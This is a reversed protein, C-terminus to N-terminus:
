FRPPSSNINNNLLNDTNKNDLIDDLFLESELIDNDLKTIGTNKDLIESLNFDIGLNNLNDFFESNKLDLLDQDGSVNESNDEIKTFSDILEMNRNSKTTYDAWDIDNHSKPSSDMVEFNPHAKPSSNKINLTKSPDYKSPKSTQMSQNKNIFINKGFNGGRDNKPSSNLGREYDFIQNSLRTRENHKPLCINDDLIENLDFELGGSSKIKLDNISDGPKFEQNTKDLILPIFNEKEKKLKQIKKKKLVKNKKKNKMFDFRKDVDSYDEYDAMSSHSSKINSINSSSSLNHDTLSNSNLGSSFINSSYEFNHPSSELYTNSRTVFSDKEMIKRMISSKNNPNIKKKTLEKNNKTSKALPSHKNMLNRVPSRHVKSFKLKVELIDNCNGKTRVIGSFNKVVRGIIEINNNIESLLGCSVFPEKNELIDRYYVNYDNSQNDFMEPSSTALLDFIKSFSVYGFLMNRDEDVENLINKSTMDVYQVPVPNLSRSLFPSLDNDIIYIVKLILDKTTRKNSNDNM